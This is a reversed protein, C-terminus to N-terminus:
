GGVGDAQNRWYVIQGECNERERVCQYHTTRMHEPNWKVLGDCKDDIRKLLSTFATLRRDIEKRDIATVFNRVPAPRPTVPRCDTYGLTSKTCRTDTPRLQEGCGPCRDVAIM